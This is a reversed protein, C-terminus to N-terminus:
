ASVQAGQPLDDVKSDTGSDAEISVYVNGDREMASFSRVSIRPSIPEDPRLNPIKRCKGNSGDYCWGHYGCQLTGEQTVWGMSLPVRRHACRDELAYVRGDHRYLVVEEIGVRVALPKKKLDRSRAVRNWDKAQDM